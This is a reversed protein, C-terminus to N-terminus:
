RMPHHQMSRNFQCPQGSVQTGPGVQRRIPFEGVVHIQRAGFVATTNRPHTVVEEEILQNAREQAAAPVRGARALAM